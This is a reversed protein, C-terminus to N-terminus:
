GRVPIVVVRGDPSISRPICDTDDTGWGRNTMEGRFAGTIEGWVVVGPYNIPHSATTFDGKLHGIRVSEVVVDVPIGLEALRRLVVDPDPEHVDEFAASQTRGRM